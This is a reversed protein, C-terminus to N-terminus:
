PPLTIEAVVDAEEEEVEVVVVLHLKENHTLRQSIHIMTSITMARCLPSAITYYILLRNCESKPDSIKSLFSNLFENFLFMCKM